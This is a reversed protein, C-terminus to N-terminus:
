IRLVSSLDLPISSAAPSSRTGSRGNIRVLAITPATPEISAAAYRCDVHTTDSSTASAFAVLRAQDHGCPMPARSVRVATSGTHHCAPTGVASRAADCSAACWDAALPVAALAMALLIAVSVRGSRTM